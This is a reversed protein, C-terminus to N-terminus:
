EPLTEMLQYQNTKIDYQWVEKQSIRYSDSQVFYFTIKLKSSNIWEYSDIFPSIVDVTSKNGTYDEKNRPPKINSLQNNLVNVLYLDFDGCEAGCVSRTQFVLYKNDASFVPQSIELASFQGIKNEDIFVGYSPNRSQGNLLQFSIKQNNISTITYRGNDIKANTKGFRINVPVHIFLSSTPSIFIISNIIRDLFPEYQKVFSQYPDNSTASNKPVRIGKITYLKDGKIVYYFVATYDGVGFPSGNEYELYYTPIGNIKTENKSSPMPAQKQSLINKEVFDKVSLSDTINQTIIKVSLSLQSESPNAGGNGSYQKERINKLSVGFANKDLSFKISHQGEPMVEGLTPYDVVYGDVANTYKTWALDNTTLNKNNLGTQNSQKTGTDNKNKITSVLYFGLTVFIVLILILSYKKNM